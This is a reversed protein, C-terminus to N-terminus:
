ASYTAATPLLRRLRMTEALALALDPSGHLAGLVSNYIVVTPEVAACVLDQLLQCAMKWRRSSECAAVAAGTGVAGLA